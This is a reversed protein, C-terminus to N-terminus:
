RLFAWLLLVNLAALNICNVCLSAIKVVMVYSLCASMFVAVIAILMAVDAHKGYALHLLAVYLVTGFVSTPIRLVASERSQLVAETNDKRGGACGCKPIKYSPDASLRYKYYTAQVSYALGLVSFTYWPNTNFIYTVLKAIIWFGILAGTMMKLFEPLLVPIRDALYNGLYDRVRATRVHDYLLQRRVERERVRRSISGLWGAHGAMDSMDIM